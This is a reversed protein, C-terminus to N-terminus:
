VDESPPEAGRGIDGGRLEFTAPEAMGSAPWGSRSAWLPQAPLAPARVIAPCPLLAVTGSRLNREHRFNEQCVAFAFIRYLAKLPYYIALVFDAMFRIRCFSRRRRLFRTALDLTRVAKFPALAAIVSFASVARTETFSAM